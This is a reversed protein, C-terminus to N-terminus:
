PLGIFKHTQLSLSWRPDSKVFEVCLKTNRQLHPGDMPQLFYLSFDTHDFLWRPNMGEQPWVLKLENGSTQELTANAKPSVTVYDIGEEVKLTGNTEIAIVFEEEKLADILEEDVQLMPEGGTIVIRRANEGGELHDITVCEDWLQRATLALISAADYTIGSTFKTDCFKCVANERDEERGSWLNCGSLRLFMAPMGTNGGEGQITYYLDNVKYSM